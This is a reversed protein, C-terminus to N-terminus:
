PQLKKAADNLINSASMLILLAIQGMWFSALGIHLCFLSLM